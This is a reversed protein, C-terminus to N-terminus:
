RFAGAIWLIGVLAGIVSTPGLWRVVALVGSARQYFTLAPRFERRIEYLVGETTATGDEGLLDARLQAVENRDTANM